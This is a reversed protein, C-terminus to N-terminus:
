KVKAKATQLEDYQRKFESGVNTSWDASYIKSCHICKYSSKAAFRTPPIIKYFSPNEDQYPYNHYCEMAEAVLVEAASM